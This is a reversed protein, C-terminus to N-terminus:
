RLKITWSVVECSIRNNCGEHGKSIILQHLPFRHLFLQKPPHKLIPEWSSYTVEFYLFYLISPSRARPAHLQGSTELYHCHLILHFYVEVGVYAKMTHMPITTGTSFSPCFLEGKV